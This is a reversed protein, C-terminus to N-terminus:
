SADRAAFQMGPEYDSPCLPILRFASEIDTKALYCGQGLSLIGQIANDITIYHLSYEEKSISSNISTTGSKPFSLHFITRFKDSHKKPVLGIPSVQFNPFPPTSFPGAVRGLAVEKLLNATVVHPQELATPLNRSFRSVRSGSYGVDVGHKLTSCLTSVFSHDPHGSLARELDNVNIPTPLAGYYGKSGELPLQSPPARTGM